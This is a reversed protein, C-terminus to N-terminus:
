VVEAKELQVKRALLKYALVLGTLLLTCGLIWNILNHQAKLANMLYNGAIGYLLFAICTGTGIALIYINYARPKSDLIKRGKLVATWGLWFPIHLPNLLSLVLGSYFPQMGVFPLVDDFNRMHFAAELSKYALFLIAFCFVVSLYRFLKQLHGLKDLLILAIRVLGVEVIIAALGFEFAGIFNNNLTYNAVNTNLTGIPLAGIFSISFATIFLKIYRAM